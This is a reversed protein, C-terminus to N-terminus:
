QVTKKEFHTLHVGQIFINPEFDRVSLVVFYDIIKKM